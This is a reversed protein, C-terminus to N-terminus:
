TKKELTSLETIRRFQLLFVGIFKTGTIRLCWCCCRSDKRLLWSAFHSDFGLHKDFKSVQQLVAAGRLFFCLFDELFCINSLQLYKSDTICHKKLYTLINNTRYSYPSYYRTVVLNVVPHLCFLIPQFM